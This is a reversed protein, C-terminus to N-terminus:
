YNFSFSVWVMYEKPEDHGNRIDNIVLSPFSHFAIEKDPYQKKLIQYQEMSNTSDRICM